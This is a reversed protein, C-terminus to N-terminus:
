AAVTPYYVANPVYLVPLVNDLTILDHGSPQTKPESWSTFGEAMRQPGAKTEYYAERGSISGIWTPSPEPTFVATNAGFMTTLAGEVELADDYVHVTLWPLQPFMATFYRSSSADGSESFEETLDRFVRNGTGSIAQMGANECMYAFVTSSCIMRSIPYGSEWISRARLATIEGFVDATAVTQWDGAFIATQTADIASADVTTKNRAPIAYDVPIGGTDDSLVLRQGSPKMYFIGGALMRVAMFERANANREALTTMQRRIYNAQNVDLTGFAEGVGRHQSLENLLLDVKEHIRFLAASQTGVPNRAVSTPGGYPQAGEALSRVRDYIDWTAVRGAPLIESPPDGVRLGYISQVIDNGARIRSIEKILQPTFLIQELTVTAM